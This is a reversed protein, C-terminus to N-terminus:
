PVPAEHSAGLVGFAVLRYPRIGSGISEESLNQTRKVLIPKPLERKNPENQLFSGARV